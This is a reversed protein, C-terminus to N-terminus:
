NKGRLLRHATCQAVYDDNVVNPNVCTSLGASPVGSGSLPAFAVELASGFSFVHGKALRFM